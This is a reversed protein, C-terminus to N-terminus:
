QMCFFGDDCCVRSGCTQQMNIVTFRGLLVVFGKFMDKTEQFFLKTRVLYSCMSWPPPIECTCKGMAPNTLKERWPLKQTETEFDTKKPPFPLLFNRSNEYTKPTESHCVDLLGLPRANTSFFGENCVFSVTTVAFARGV